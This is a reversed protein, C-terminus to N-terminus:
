IQNSFDDLTYNRGDSDIFGDIEGKKLLEIQRKRWNNDEDLWKNHNSKNFYKINSNM